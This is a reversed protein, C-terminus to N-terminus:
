SKWGTIIKQSAKQVLTEPNPINSDIIAMVGELDGQEGKEKFSPKVNEPLADYTELMLQRLILEGVDSLVADQQDRDLIELGLESIVQQRLEDNM